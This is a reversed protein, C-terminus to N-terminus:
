LASLGGRVSLGKQKGSSTSENLVVHRSLVWRGNRRVNRIGQIKSLTDATALTISRLDQLACDRATIRDIRSDIGDDCIQALVGFGPQLM